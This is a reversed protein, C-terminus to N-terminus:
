GVLQYLTYLDQTKPQTGYLALVSLKMYFNRLFRVLAGFLFATTVSTYKARWSRYLRSISSNSEWRVCSSFGEILRTYRDQNPQYQVTYKSLNKTFPARSATISLLVTYYFFLRLMRRVRFHSFVKKLDLFSSLWRGFELCCSFSALSFPRHCFLHTLPRGGFLNDCVGCCDDMHSSEVCNPCFIKNRQPKNWCRTAAPSPIKPIKLNITPNCAEQEEDTCNSHDQHSM